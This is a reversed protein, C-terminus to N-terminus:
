KKAKKPPVLRKSLVVPESDNKAISGCCFWHGQEPDWYEIVPINGYRVWYWGKALKRM